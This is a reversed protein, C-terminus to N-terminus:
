GNKWEDGATDPDYNDKWEEGAYDEPDYDDSEEKEFERFSSFELYSIEVHPYKFNPKEHDDEWSVGHGLMKMVVLWAFKEPSSYREDYDDLSQGDIELARKYLEKIDTGGNAEEFSTLFGYIKDELERQEKESLFDAYNPAVDTIEKGRLSVHHESGKPVENEMWDAWMMAFIYQLAADSVSVTFDFDVNELDQFNEILFNYLKNFNM